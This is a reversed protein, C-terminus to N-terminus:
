ARVGTAVYITAPRSATTQEQAVIQGSEILTLLVEKRENRRLWQTARSVRHSTMGQDGASAIVRLVRKTDAEVRSSAVHAEAVAQTRETCWQVLERAWEVDDPGIERDRDDCTTRILAIKQVHEAFRNWLNVLPDGSEQLKRMRRDNAAEIELVARRAERLMPVTRCGTAVSADSSSGQIGEPKTRIALAQLKRILEPPPVEISALPQRTPLPDDVFFCLFRNLFGDQVAGRDLASFLDDPVGVGYIGLNPENLTIPPSMKRDAYAAALHVSGARSFLELIYRKIGQLHPPVHDGSLVKLVKLFEDILCAHSPHAVLAARLGSDSKWEGPGICAEFGALTFLSVPRAISPDKGCGTPGIGLAYLNTRLRTETQVRRGILAGLTVLASALCLAPQRQPSTRLMWDVMEGIVGHVALLHEPFAGAPDAKPPPPAEASQPTPAAAARLEADLSQTWGAEKAMHFLTAITIETGDMRFERISQWQYDQDAADFKHPWRQSWEDWLARAQQKAGTSKLAMGVRLWNNRGEGDIHTLAEVIDAHQRPDIPVAGASDCGESLSTAARPKAIVDRIWQPMPGIHTSWTGDAEEWKEFPDGLVWERGPSSPGPVVIYGGSARVDIGSGAIVDIGNGIPPDPMAYVYHRGGRPTSAILGCRALGHEDQLRAFAAIGDKNESPKLDLDIVAIGARGCDIGIQAEPWRRWWSDIQATATSADKFGNQTFPKKDARCPFVPWGIDAYHLAADLPTKFRESDM